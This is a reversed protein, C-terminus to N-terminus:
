WTSGPSLCQYQYARPTYLHYRYYEQVRVYGEIQECYLIGIYLSERNDLVFTCYIKIFLFIEKSWSTLDEYVYLLNVPNLTHLHSIGTIWFDAKVIINWLKWSLLLKGLRALNPLLYSPTLNWLTLSYNFLSFQFYSRFMPHGSQLMSQNEFINM